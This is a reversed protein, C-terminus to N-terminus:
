SEPPPESAEDGVPTVTTQAAILNACQMWLNNREGQLSSLRANLRRLDAATSVRALEEEVSAIESEVDAIAERLAAIREERTM